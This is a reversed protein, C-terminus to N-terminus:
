VVHGPHIVSLHATGSRAKQLLEIMSNFDLRELRMGNVGVIEDGPGLGARWSPSGEATQLVMVKGPQVYLISGFGLAQGRVQQQLAEFQDANFFASFPDLASLLGRIGGELILRDPDVTDAHHREVLGYIETFLLAEGTLEDTLAEGQSFAN